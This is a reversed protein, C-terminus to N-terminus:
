EFLDTASTPEYGPLYSGWWRLRLIRYGDSVFDDAIAPHIMEPTGNWDLNSPRNGGRVDPNNTYILFGPPQSWVIPDALATCGCITVLVSLYAALNMLIM